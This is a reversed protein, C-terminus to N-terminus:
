NVDIPWHFHPTRPTLVWLLGARVCWESLPLRTICPVYPSRTQVLACGLCNFVLWPLKGLVLERFQSTGVFGLATWSICRRPLLRLFSYQWPPPVLIGTVVPPVSLLIQFLTLVWWSGDDRWLSCASLCFWGLLFNPSSSPVKRGMM